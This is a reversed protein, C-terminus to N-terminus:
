TERYLPSSEQAESPKKNWVAGNETLLGGTKRRKKCFYFIQFIPLLYHFNIWLTEHETILKGRTLRDARGRHRAPLSSLLKFSSLRGEVSHVFIGSAVQQCRKFSSWINEVVINAMGYMQLVQLVFWTLPDWQPTTGKASSPHLHWRRIERGEAARGAM